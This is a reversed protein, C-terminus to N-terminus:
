PIVLPFREQPVNRAIKVAEWLSKQNGSLINERIKNKQKRFSMIRIKKDLDRCRTLLRASERRRANRFINRRKKRLLRVEEAEFIRKEKETIMQVPILNDIITLLKQELENNFDQVQTCDINWNM